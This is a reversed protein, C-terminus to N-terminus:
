KEQKEVSDANSAEFFKFNWLAAAFIIAEGYRGAKCAAALKLAYSEENKANDWAEMRVFNEDATDRAERAATAMLMNFAAINDAFDQRYISLVNEGTKPAAGEFLDLPTQEVTVLITEGTKVVECLEKHQDGTFSLGDFKVDAGDQKIRVEKVKAETKVKFRDM